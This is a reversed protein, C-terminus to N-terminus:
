APFTVSMCDTCILAGQMLHGYSIVQHAICAFPLMCSCFVVQRVWAEKLTYLESKTVAQQERDLGGTLPRDKAAHEQAKTLLDLVVRSEMIRCHPVLV